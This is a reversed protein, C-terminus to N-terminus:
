HPNSWLTTLFIGSTPPPLPQPLAHARPAGEWELLPQQAGEDAAVRLDPAYCRQAVAGPRAAGFLMAEGDISCCPTGAPPLLPLTTLRIPWPPWPHREHHPWMRGRHASSGHLEPQWQVCHLTCLMSHQTSCEDTGSAPGFNYPAAFVSPM